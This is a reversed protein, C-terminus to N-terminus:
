RSASDLSSESDIEGVAPVLKCRHATMSILNLFAVQVDGLRASSGGIVQFYRLVNLVVGFMISRPQFM